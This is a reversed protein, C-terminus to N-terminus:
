SKVKLLILMELTMRNKYFSWGVSSWWLFWFSKLGALTYVQGLACPKCFKILKLLLFFFYKLQEQKIKMEKM